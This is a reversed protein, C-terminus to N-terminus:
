RQRALRAARFVAPALVAIWAALLAIRGYLFAVHTWELQAFSAKLGKACALVGAVGIVLAIATRVTSASLTFRVYRREVLVGIWYFTLFASGVFALTPPMDGPMSLLWAVQVGALVAIQVAIPVREIKPAVRPVVIMATALMAAGLLAGVAIDEVDHVGLYVRSFAVCAAVIPFAIWTWTKRLELALGGWLVVAIMAHGSPLGYGRTEILWPISDPRPDMWVAKLHAMIIIALGVLAGVRAFADRRWVWYGLPIFVFLFNGNGLETFRRMIWTLAPSRIDLVWQMDHLLADLACRGYVFAAAQM